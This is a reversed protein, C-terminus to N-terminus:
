GVEVWHAWGAPLALSLRGKQAVHRRTEKKQVGGWMCVSFCVSEGISRQTPKALEGWWGESARDVRERQREKHYEDESKHSRWQGYASNAIDHM